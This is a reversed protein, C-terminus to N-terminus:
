DMEFSSDYHTLFIANKYLMPGQTEIQLKLEVTASASLDGFCSSSQWIKCGPESASFLWFKKENENFGM